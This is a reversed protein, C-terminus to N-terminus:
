FHARNNMWRKKVYHDNVKQKLCIIDEVTASKVRHRCTFTCYSTVRIQVAIRASLSGTLSSLVLRNHHNLTMKWKWGTRIACKCSQVRKGVSPNSLKVLVNSLMGDPLATHEIYANVYTQHILTINYQPERQKCLLFVLFSFVLLIDLHLRLFM